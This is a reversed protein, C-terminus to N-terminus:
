AWTSIATRKWVNTAGNYNATCVYIYDADWAIDGEQDGAAGLASAPTKSNSIRIRNANVDVTGTGAPDLIIDDNSRTSKINNDVLQLGDTDVSGVTIGNITTAGANTVTELTQTAVSIAVKNATVSTTVLGEGNFDIAYGNNVTQAASDDGSITFNQMASDATAGQAATAYNSALGDAYGKTAADTASTPTAVSQIRNSGMDVTQSGSVQLTGTVTAQGTVTLPGNVQVRATGQPDLVINSNTALSTVTNGSIVLGGVELSTGIFRDGFVTLYRKDSSGINYLSDSNPILDNKLEANITIDDTDADGITINGGITVNGTVALNGGVTADGSTTLSTGDIDQVFIDRWRLTLSGIDNTETVSPVLSSDFRGTITVTDGTTDGLNVDGNANLAGGITVAGTVDLDSAITSGITISGFTAAGTVTLAGGVTANATVALSDPTLGGTVTTAGTLTITGTGNPDIIIGSNSTDTSITSGSMKINSLAVGGLENYVETFNDNVKVFAARLSDGTGDDQNTGVNITQKSM